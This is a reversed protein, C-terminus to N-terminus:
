FDIEEVTKIWQTKRAVSLSYLLADATDPNNSIHYEKYLDDSEKSWSPIYEKRYGRPICKKATQIVM